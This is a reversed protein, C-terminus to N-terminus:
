ARTKIIATELPELDGPGNTTVHEGTVTMRTNHFREGATVILRRALWFDNQIRTTLLDMVMRKGKFRTRTRRMTGNKFVAPRMRAMDTNYEMAVPDKMELAKAISNPVERYDVQPCLHTEPTSLYRKCNKIYEYIGLVESLPTEIWHFPLIGAEQESLIEFHSWWAVDDGTDLKIDNENLIEPTPSIYEFALFANIFLGNFIATRRTVVGDTVSTSLWKERTMTTHQSCLITQGDMDRILTALHGAAASATPESWPGTGDGQLVLHAAADYIKKLEPNEVVEVKPLDLWIYAEAVPERVSFEGIEVFTINPKSRFAYVHQCLWAAAGISTVSDESYVVIVKTDHGWQKKETSKGFPIFSHVRAFLKKINFM